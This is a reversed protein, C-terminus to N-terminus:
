HQHIEIKRHLDHSFFSCKTLIISHFDFIIYIKFYIFVRTPTAPQYVLPPAPASPMPPLPLPSLDAEKQLVEAAGTLGKSLLHQHILQFLQNENFTIHTQAM